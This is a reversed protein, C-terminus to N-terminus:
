SDISAVRVVLKQRRVRGARLLDFGDLIGQWGGEIERVPHCKVLGRDVLFQVERTAQRGLEHREASYERMYPERGLHLVKGNAEYGAIFHTHVTRRTRWTDELAELSAYRGGVRGLAAMCVEASQEDTICDLVHRISATAGNAVARERIDAACTPSTYLATDAAGYEVALQASEASAVAIPLYGSAKLLQCAMTGSATGGGYVVVPVVAGEHPTSPMGSLALAAPDWMALAATKWGVGGFAAAETDSWSSPPKVLQAAEAIIYQAFAGEQAENPMCGIVNGCVRDGYRFDVGNNPRVVLGCFDMGVM